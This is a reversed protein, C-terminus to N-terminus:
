SVVPNLSYMKVNLISGSTVEYYYGEYSDAILNYESDFVSIRFSGFSGIHFPNKILGVVM